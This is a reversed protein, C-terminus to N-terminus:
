GHRSGPLEALRDCLREANREFGYTFVQAIDPAGSFDGEFTMAAASGGHRREIGAAKQDGGDSARKHFVRHFSQDLEPLQLGEAGALRHATAEGLLQLWFDCQVRVDSIHHLTQNVFSISQGVGITSRWLVRFGM